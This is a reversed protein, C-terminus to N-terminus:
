PPGEEPIVSRVAWTGGERGVVLRTGDLRGLSRRVTELDLRTDTAIDEDFVPVPDEPWEAPDVAFPDFDTQAAAWLQLASESVMDDSTDDTPM